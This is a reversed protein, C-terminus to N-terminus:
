ADKNLRKLERICILCTPAIADSKIWFSTAKSPTTGCITKQKTKERGDIIAHVIDSIHLQNSRYRGKQMYVIQM